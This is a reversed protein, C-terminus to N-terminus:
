AALCRRVEATDVGLGALLAAAPDPEALEILALLLHGTTIRRSREGTALALARPIVARAGSSFSSRRPKSTSGPPQFSGVDIGVAKLARLDLDALEARAQRLDRGLVGAMAPDHMVGLLLHDTGIRRDGRRAAEDASSTIAERATDSLREFM